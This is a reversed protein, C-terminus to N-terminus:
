IHILSLGQPADKGKFFHNFGVEYLAAASAYTSIHGGCRQVFDAEVVEELALVGRLAAVLDEELAVGGRTHVARANM